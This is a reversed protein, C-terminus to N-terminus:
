VPTRSCSKDQHIENKKSTRAARICVLSADYKKERMIIIRLSARYVYVATKFSDFIFDILLFFSEPREFPDGLSLGSRWYPVPDSSSLNVPCM